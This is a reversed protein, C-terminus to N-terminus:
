LWLQIPGDVNGIVQAVSPVTGARSMADPGLAAAGCGCRNRKNNQPAVGYVPSAGDPNYRAGNRGFWLKGADADWAIALKDNAAYTNATTLATHTGTKVAQQGKAVAAGGKRVAL